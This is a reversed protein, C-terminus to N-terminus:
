DPEAMPLQFGEWELSGRYVGFGFVSGDPIAIVGLGYGPGDIAPTEYAWRLSGDPAIKLVAHREEGPVGFDRDWYTVRGLLGASVFADGSDLLAQDYLEFPSASPADELLDDLRWGSGDARVYHVHTNGLSTWSRLMGGQADELFADIGCEDGCGGVVVRSKGDRTYRVARNSGTTNGGDVWGWAYLEGAPSVSLGLLGERASVGQRAWLLRGEADLRAPASGGPTQRMFALGGEPHAAVDGIFDETTYLWATRAM